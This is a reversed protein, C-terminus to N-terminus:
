PLSRLVPYAALDAVRFRWINLSHIGQFGRVASAGTSAPTFHLSSRNLAMYFLPCRTGLECAYMAESRVTEDGAARCDEPEEDDHDAGRRESVAEAHERGARALQEIREWYRLFQIFVNYNNLNGALAKLLLKHALEGSRCSTTKIWCFFMLMIPTHLIDHFMRFNWAQAEGSREPFVKQLKEMLATGRTIVALLNDQDELLNDQDESNLKMYSKLHGAAM